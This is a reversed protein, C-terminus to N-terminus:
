ASRVSRASSRRSGSAPILSVVPGLTSTLINFGGAHAQALPPLHASSCGRSRASLRHIGRWSRCVGERWQRYVGVLADSLRSRRAQVTPELLLLALLRSRGCQQRHHDELRRHPLRYEPQGAFRTDAPCVKQAIPRERGGTLDSSAFMRRLPSRRSRAFRAASHGAREFLAERLRLTRYTLTDDATM